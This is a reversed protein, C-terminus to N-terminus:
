TGKVCSSSGDIYTKGNKATDGNFSGSFTFAGKSNIGPAAAAALGTLKALYLKKQSRLVPSKSRALTWTITSTAPDLLATASVASASGTAGEKKYTYTADQVGNAYRVLAFSQEYGHSHWTLSYTSGGTTQADDALSAVRIVGVLNKSGTAIDASQIDLPPINPSAPAALQADGSSDLLLRCASGAAHSSGALAGGAVLATATILPAFKM